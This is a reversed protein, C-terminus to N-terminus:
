KGPDIAIADELATKGAAYTLGKFKDLSPKLKGGEGAIRKAIDEYYNIQNETPQGPGSFGGSNKKSGGSRGTSGGSGGTSAAKGPGGLKLEKTAAMRATYLAVQLDVVVEALGDVGKNDSGDMHAVILAAANFSAAFASKKDQLDPKGGKSM